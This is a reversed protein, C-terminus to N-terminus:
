ASVKSRSEVYCFLTCAECYGEVLDGCQDRLKSCSFPKLGKSYISEIQYTTYDLSFDDQHRFLDIAAEKTLGANYADIAIATRASHGAELSISVAVPILCGSTLMAM